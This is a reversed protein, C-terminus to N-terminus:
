PAITTLTGNVRNFVGGIGGSLTNLAVILVVAVLGIILGYEVMGQGEEDKLLGILKAKM